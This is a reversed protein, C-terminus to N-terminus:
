PVSPRGCAFFGSSPTSDRASINGYLACTTPENDTAPLAERCERQDKTLLVKCADPEKEVDSTRWVVSKHLCTRLGRLSSMDGGRSAEILLELSLLHSLTVRDQHAKSAKEQLTCLTKLATTLSM